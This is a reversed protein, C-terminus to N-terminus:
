TGGRGQEDDDEELGFLSNEELDIGENIDENNLDIIVEANLSTSSTEPPTTIM